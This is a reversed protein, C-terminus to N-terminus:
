KASESVPAMALLSGDLDHTLFRRLVDVRSRAETEREEFRIAMWDHGRSRETDALRRAMRYLM